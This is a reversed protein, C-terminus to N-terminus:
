FGANLSGGSKRELLDRKEFGSQVIRMKNPDFSRVLGYAEKPSGRLWTEFAEEGDLLVPMREHNISKTLENPETTM